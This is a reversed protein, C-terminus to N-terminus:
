ENYKSCFSIVDPVIWKFSPSTVSVKHTKGDPLTFTAETEEPCSYMFTIEIENGAYVPLETTNKLTISTTTQGNVTINWTINQEGGGAGTSNAVIAKENSILSNNTAKFKLTNLEIVPKQIPTVVIVPDSEKCVTAILIMSILVISGVFEYLYKM